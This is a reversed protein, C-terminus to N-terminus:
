KARIECRITDIIEVVPSGPPPEIKCTGKHEWCKEVLRGFQDFWFPRKEVVAM